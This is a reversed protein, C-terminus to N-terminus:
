SSGAPPEEETDSELDADWWNRSSSRLPLSQPGGRLAAAETRDIMEGERRTEATHAEIRREDLTRGAGVGSRGGGSRLVLKGLLALWFGRDGKHRWPKEQVMFVVANAFGQIAFGALSLCSIWFPRAHVGHTQGLVQNILPFLWTLTYILPYIFLSRLQRRIRERNRAVESGPDEYCECSPDSCPLSPGDVGATSSLRSEPM